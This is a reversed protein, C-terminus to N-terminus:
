LAQRQDEDAREDIYFGMVPKAEGAWVNGEFNGLAV